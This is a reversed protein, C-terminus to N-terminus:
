AGPHRGFSGDDGAATGRRLQFLVVGGNM